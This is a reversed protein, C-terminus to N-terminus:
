GSLVWLTSEMFPLSQPNPSLSLVLPHAVNGLVICGKQMSAHEHLTPIVKSQQMM